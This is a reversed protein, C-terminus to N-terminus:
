PAPSRRHFTESTSSPHTVQRLSFSGCALDTPTAASRQPGHTTAIRGVSGWKVIFVSRRPGEFGRAASLRLTTIGSLRTPLCVIPELLQVLGFLRLSRTKMWTQPPHIPPIGGVSIRRSLKGHFSLSTSYRAQFRAFRSKTSIERKKLISETGPM